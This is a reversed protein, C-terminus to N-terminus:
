SKIIFDLNDIYNEIEDNKNLEIIQKFDCLDIDYTRKVCNTNDKTHAFKTIFNNINKNLNYTDNINKLFKIVNQNNDQLYNLNVLIVNNNKNFYNIISMFKYYRIEFISKDNDDDNIPKNTRFDIFEKETSIQKDTLFNKFDEIYKLIYQNKYMSVLWDNLNRFIFIDVVNLEKLYKKVSNCPTGHKWYYYTNDIIEHVFIIDFNEGILCELYNTGSNREGWIKFAYVM